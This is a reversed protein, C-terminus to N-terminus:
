FRYLALSGIMGLISNTGKEAAAKGRSPPVFLIDDAQLSIDTAKAEFIKKLDIKRNELNGQSTKRILTTKGIAALRTPGGAMAIVQMASVEHEGNEMVFGGPKGVEGLVYVVGARAVVVMDGPHLEVNNNSSIIPDSSLKIVDPKGSGGRHGITVVNGARQTLGGAVTFLDYLHRATLASYTGPKAVEGMITVNQTTYSKVMFMVHPNKLFGGDQLKKEILAQADDSTLGAVTLSGILPLSIEGAGSVRVHQTLDPVGYVSFEAEDGPGIVLRGAADDDTQPSSANVAAPKQEDTAPASMSQAAAMGSMAACLVLVSMRRCLSPFQEM